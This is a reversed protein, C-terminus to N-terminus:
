VEGSRIAAITRFPIASRTPQARGDMASGKRGFFISSPRSSSTRSHMPQLTQTDPSKLMAGMRHVWFGVIPSSHRLPQCGSRM